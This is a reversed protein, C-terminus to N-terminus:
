EEQEYDWEKRSVTDLDLVQNFMAEIVPYDSAKLQGIGEPLQIIFPNDISSHSKATKSKIKWKGCGSSSYKIADQLFPNKEGTAWDVNM